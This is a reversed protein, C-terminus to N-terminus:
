GLVHLCQGSSRLRSEDGRSPGRTTGFEGSGDLEGIEGRRLESCAKTSEDGQAEKSVKGGSGTSIV